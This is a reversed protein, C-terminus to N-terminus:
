EYRLARVPDLRAARYAPLVGALTCIVLVSLAVLVVDHASTAAPIESLHYLEKPLLEMNFRDSFFQLIDNRYRLFTLGLGIGAATGVIGQVFGQWIFVGMVQASSFGLSKLLGIERTKQVTVTILTNCIGFAAVITIIILLLFMMNKEVRLAAFLQRNQQMWTTISYGPGIAARIASSTDGARLADKTMVQIAHVGTELRYLTRATELSTLIFSSDFEWMGLEYIGRVTLEEPLYLEDAMNFSQPSYVLLTDGVGASMQRALDIGILVGGDEVNYEGQVIHEPVRSVKSEYRPDFGRALPTFVRDDKVIFVLGQVFPAAGTVGPLANIEELLPEPDELVGYEQVTIHANFSLIKERWMEDFGSMVSLVIVLVAVGLMVGVVSIVTVVSIFTRKPRMYNLALYMSFPLRM